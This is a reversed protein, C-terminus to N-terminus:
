PNKSDVDMRELRRKITKAAETLSMHKLYDKRKYEQSRQHIIIKSNQENRKSQKELALKIKEKAKKKWTDKATTHAEGIDIKIM